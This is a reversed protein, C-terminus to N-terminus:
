RYEGRPGNVAAWMWNGLLLGLNDLLLGLNVEDGVQHAQADSAHEELHRVPFQECGHREIAGDVFGRDNGDAYGDPPVSGGSSAVLATDRPKM